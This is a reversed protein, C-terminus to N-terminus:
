GPEPIGLATDSDPDTEGVAAPASARLPGRRPRQCVFGRAGIRKQQQANMWEAGTGLRSATARPVNWADGSPPSEM